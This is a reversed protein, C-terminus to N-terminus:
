ALKAAIEQELAWIRKKLDLLQECWLNLKNMLRFWTKDDKADMLIPNIDFNLQRDSQYDYDEAIQSEIEKTNELLASLQERSSYSKLRASLEDICPGYKILFFENEYRPDNLLRPLPIDSFDPNKAIVPIYHAHKSASKTRKHLIHGFIRKFFMRM